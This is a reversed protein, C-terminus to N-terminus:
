KGKVENLVKNVIREIYPYYDSDTAERCNKVKNLVDIQVQKVQPCDFCREDNEKIAGELKDIECEQEECKEKLREIEKEKKIILTLADKCLSDNCRPTPFYPCKKCGEIGELGMCCELAKKIEKSTM